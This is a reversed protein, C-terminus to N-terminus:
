SYHVRRDMLAAQTLTLTVVITLFVFTVAAGYGVNLYEFSETYLTHLLTESAQGPGGDTLVAVTDFVEFARLAMIIAVFMTVPGLMPLTVVRLRDLWGDAGDIEAADYLARPIGKLGALFLVMALGTNQWIGIAMLTPLVLDRDRLWNRGEMGLAELAANVLGIAPHLMAEWAIAMAALTAMVPLFFIARYAARFWRGSEILLAIALGLITTAPVTVAAYLLTNGLAARFTRDSFTEAFNDAGVWNLSQSGLRWDTLAILLVGLTPLLVLIVILATAPLSLLMGAVADPGLPHRRTKMGSPIATLRINAQHSM